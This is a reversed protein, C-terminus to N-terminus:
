EPLRDGVVVDLAKVNEILNEALNEALDEAVSAINEGVIWVGDAAAGQEM